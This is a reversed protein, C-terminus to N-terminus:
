TPNNFVSVRPTLFIDLYFANPSYSYTANLSIFFIALLFPYLFVVSDDAKYWKGHNNKVYCVYHGSFTSNMIDLHVVVGYLQYIPSKDSTRSMYRALNLIEPFKVAKNLKGFKGSQLIDSTYSVLLSGFFLRCSVSESLLCRFDKLPLLSSM